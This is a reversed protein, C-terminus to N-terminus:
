VRMAYTFCYDNMVEDNYYRKVTRMLPSSATVCTDWILRFFVKGPM